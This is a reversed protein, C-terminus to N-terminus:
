VWRRCRAVKPVEVREKRSHSVSCVWVRFLNTQICDEKEDNMTKSSEETIGSAHNLLSLSPTTLVAFPEERIILKICSKFYLEQSIHMWLKVGM